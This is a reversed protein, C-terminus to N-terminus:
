TRLILLANLLKQRWISMLVRDRAAIFNLLAQFMKVIEWTAVGGSKNDYEYQGAGIMMIWGDFRQCDWTDDIIQFATM